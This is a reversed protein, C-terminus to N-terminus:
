KLNVNRDNELRGKVIKVSVLGSGVYPASDDSLKVNPQTAVGGAVLRVFISFHAEHGADVIRRSLHTVQLGM